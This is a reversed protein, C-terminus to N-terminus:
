QTLRTAFGDNERSILTDCRPSMLTLSPNCGPWPLMEPLVPLAPPPQVQVQGIITVKVVVDNTVVQM